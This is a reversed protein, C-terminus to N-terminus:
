EEDDEPPVIMLRWGCVAADAICVIGLCSFFSVAIWELLM